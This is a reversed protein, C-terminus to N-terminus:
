NALSWRSALLLPPSLRLRRSKMGVADDDQACSQSFIPRWVPSMASPHGARRPFLIARAAHPFRQGAASPPPRPAVTFGVRLEAAVAVDVAVSSSNGNPYAIAVPRYGVLDALANQCATIQDVMEAPTCNTFIAHDRTHNGVHVWPNLSFQGLERPTFQRDIDGKPKLVAPGFREVLRADIKEPTLMKLQEIESKQLDPSVGSRTLERSSADWWFAKNQQVHDTSVFFTAPARFQNLVDLALMNNFYGDDFTITLYRRGPSLGADIQAPSVVTYDNELMEEVFGRFDAVTVHQNPALDRNALQAQSEHLSHFLVNVLANPAVAGCDVAIAFDDVAKLGQKMLQKLM